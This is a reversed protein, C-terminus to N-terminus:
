GARLQTIIWPCSASGYPLYVVSAPVTAIYIQHENIPLTHAM